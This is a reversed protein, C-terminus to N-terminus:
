HSKLKARIRQIIESDSVYVGSDNPLSDLFSIQHNYRPSTTKKFRKASFHVESVGTQNVLHQVNEETVGAGAMVSIRNGAQLVLQGILDSGLEANPQRGSTLIRDFGVNICDELAENADRTMDFARHCTVKLPRAFEILKKCYKVDIRGEETLMGLVVGDVSLRKCMEIDQRM